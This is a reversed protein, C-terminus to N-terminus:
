EQATSNPATGKEAGLILNGSDIFFGLTAVTLPQGFIVEHKVSWPPQHHLELVSVHCPLSYETAFLGTPQSQGEAPLTQRHLLSDGEIGNPHWDWPDAGVDQRSQGATRGGLQHQSIPGFLRHEVPNWKSADTPYHAVTIALGDEDAWRQLAYKWLRPRCGNSGGSDAEIMLRRAGPYQRRGRRRWWHRIADVAFQPTDGGRGVRVHGCNCTPDYIGYPAARFQADQPFDHANVERATRRWTRGNNKFEGVLEKKKTDVSLIPDGARQFAERERRLYRFQKDRDPHPPGTFRKVNVRLSFDLVSSGSM